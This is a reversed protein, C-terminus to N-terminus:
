NYHLTEEQKMIDKEISLYGKNKMKQSIKIDNLVM